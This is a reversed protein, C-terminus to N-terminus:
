NCFSTSKKTDNQEFVVAILVLLTNTNIITKKPMLKWNFIKKNFNGDLFMNWYNLM